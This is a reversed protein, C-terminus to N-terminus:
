ASIAQICDRTCSALCRLVTLCFEIKRAYAASNLEAIVGDRGVLVDRREGKGSVRTAGGM